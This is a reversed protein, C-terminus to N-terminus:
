LVVRRIGTKLHVTNFNILYGLRCGSLKMYTLLQASHIPLLSDISKLELIVCGSVLFDIRLERRADVGRYRLPVAHQKSYLIGRRELEIEFCAEYISELLGPGLESHVAFASDLVGKGILETSDDIAGSVNM